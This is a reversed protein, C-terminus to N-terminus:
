SRNLICNPPLLPFLAIEAMKFKDFPQLLNLFLKLMQSALVPKQAPENLVQVLLRLTLTFGNRSSLKTSTLCNSLSSISNSQLPLVRLSSSIREDRFM